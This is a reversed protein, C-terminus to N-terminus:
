STSSALRAGNGLGTLLDRHAADVILCKPEAVSLARALEPAAYTDSIPVAVAGIRFSALYSCVLEISNPLMLGIREGSLGFAAFRAALASV